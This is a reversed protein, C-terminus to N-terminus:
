LLEPDSQDAGPTLVEITDPAPRVKYVVDWPHTLRLAAGPDLGALNKLLMRGIM